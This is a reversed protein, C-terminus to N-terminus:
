TPNSRSACYNQQADQAFEVGINDDFGAARMTENIAAKALPNSEWGNGYQDIFTCVGNAAKLIAYEPVGPYRTGWRAAFQTAPTGADSSIVSASPSPKETPDETPKTTPGDTTPEKSPVAKSSEPQNTLQTTPSSIPTRAPEPFNGDPEFNCGALALAAVVGVVITKKM